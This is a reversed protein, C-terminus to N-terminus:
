YSLFQHFIGFKLIEFAVNQTIKLCHSSPNDYRLHYQAASQTMGCILLHRFPRRTDENQELVLRTYTGTGILEEKIDQSAKGIFAEDLLEEDYCDLANGPAASFFSFFLFYLLFKRKLAKHTVFFFLASVAGVRGSASATRWMLIDAESALDTVEDAAAHEM